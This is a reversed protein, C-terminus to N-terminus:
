WWAPRLHVEVAGLLNSTAARFAWSRTEGAGVRPWDGVIALLNGRDATDNLLVSREPYGMAPFLDTNIVVTQGATLSGAYRIIEGTDVNALEPSDLPGVFRILPWTDATGSNTVSVIGTAGVGGADLGGVTTADLGGVTTADLGGPPDVPLGTGAPSGWLGHKRPDAAALQVFWEFDLGNPHLLVRTRDDLQVDATSAWGYEDTHTLTHQRRLDSCMAVLRQQASRRNERALVSGTGALSIIRPEYDTPSFFAGHGASRGLLGSRPEPSDEWGRADDVLFQAGSVDDEHAANFTIGDLQWSEDLPFTM